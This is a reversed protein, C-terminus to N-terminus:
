PAIEGRQMAIVIAHARTRARLKRMANRVHTRVTQPSLAVNSAVAEASQGRALLTLVERERPTLEPVSAEAEILTTQQHEPAAVRFTAMHRGPLVGARAHFHITRRVGNAGVLPYLGHLMGRALFVAWIRELDLGSDPPTFDDVRRAELEERGVGLLRLAAHNGDVYRRRDDTVVTPYPGADFVARMLRDEGRSGARHRRTAVGNVAVVVMLHVGPLHDAVSRHIVRITRGGPHRILHEGILEGDRRLACLEAAITESSRGARFEAMERGVLDETGHLELAAANAYLWRGDDSFALVADPLDDFVSLRKLSLMDPL